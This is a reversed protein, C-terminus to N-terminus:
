RPQWFRRMPVTVVGGGAPDDYPGFVVTAQDPGTVTMQFGWVDALHSAAPRAPLYCIPWPLFGCQWPVGRVAVLRGRVQDPRTWRADTLLYWTPAGDPSFNLWYGWVLDRDGGRDHHLFLGSGSVEPQFWGGSLWYAGVPIGGPTPQVALSHRSIWNRGVEVVVVEAVGSSTGDFQVGPVELQFPTEVAACGLNPNAVALYLTRRLGEGTFSVLGPLCSDRWVGRLQLTTEDGATLSASLSGDAQARGLAFRDDSALAPGALLAFGILAATRTLTKSAPM